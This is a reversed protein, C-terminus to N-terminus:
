RAEKLAVSNDTLERAHLNIWPPSNLVLHMKRIKRKLKCFGM